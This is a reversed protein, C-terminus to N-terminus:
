PVKIVNSREIRRLKKQSSKHQYTTFTLNPPDIHYQELLSNLKRRIASHILKPDLVDAKISIEIDFPSTQLVFYEEISSDATIIARRIFDPFVPKLGDRSHFYFIDDSRGEIFKIATFISGCPCPEKSEHLIDNLRYRIIPQSFRNFDTIIPYFKNEFGPIKEKQIVLLDENLHLTGYQCTTGLFGETAQYIQHIKQNFASSIYREDIPDLVEAVSIIKVPKINLTGAKSEEALKRLMSPPAALITPQQHKLKYIHEKMSDQLDYYEFQILKSKISNYLPSTTRFFFAIRQRTLLSAPLTKALISGAWSFREKLNVLFLGRNGSTGSSLGITVDGIVSEKVKKDEAELAIEFAKDRSISCTNLSSFHDMMQKKDITPFDRWHLLNLGDYLDKYFPSHRM